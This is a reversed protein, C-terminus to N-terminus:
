HPRRALADDQAVSGPVFVRHCGRGEDSISSVRFRAWRAHANASHRSVVKQLVVETRKEDPRTGINMAENPSPMTMLWPLVMGQPKVQQNASFASTRRENDLPAGM